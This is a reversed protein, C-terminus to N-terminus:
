RGRIRVIWYGGFTRNPVGEGGGAMDPNSSAGCSAPAHCGLPQANPSGPHEVKKAPAYHFHVIRAAAVLVTMGPRQCTPNASKGALGSDMVVPPRCTAWGDCGFPRHNHNGPEARAARPAPIVCRTIKESHPHVTPIIGRAHRACARRDNSRCQRALARARPRRRERDTPVRRLGSTAQAVDPPAAPPRMTAAANMTTAQQPEKGTNRPAPIRRGDRSLLL